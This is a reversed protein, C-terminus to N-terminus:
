WQLPSRKDLWQLVPLFERGKDLAQSIRKITPPTSPTLTRTIILPVIRKLNRNSIAVTPVYLNTLKDIAGYVFTLKVEIVIGTDDKELLFDPACINCEVTGNDCQRIYEYWPEPTITIGQLNRTLARGLARQYRLGKLQASTRGRPLTCPAIRQARLIV